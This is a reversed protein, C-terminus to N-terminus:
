RATKYSYSSLFSEEALPFSRRSLYRVGPLQKSYNIKIPGAAECPPVEPSSLSPRPSSRLRPCLQFRRPFGCSLQFCSSSFARNPFAAASDQSALGDHPLCSGFEPFPSARCLDSAPKLFLSRDRTAFSSFLFESGTAPVHDLGVCSHDPLSHGPPVLCHCACSMM